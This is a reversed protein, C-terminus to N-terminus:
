QRPGAIRPRLLRAAARRRFPANFTDPATLGAPFDAPRAAARCYPAGGPPGRCRPSALERSFGSLTTPGRCGYRLGVCTAAYLM